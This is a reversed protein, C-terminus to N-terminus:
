SQPPVGREPSLFLASAGSSEGAYMAHVVGSSELCQLSVRVVWWELGPIEGM